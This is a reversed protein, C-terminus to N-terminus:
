HYFKIIYGIKRLIIELMYKQYSKKENSGM